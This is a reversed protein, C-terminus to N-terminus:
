LIPAWEFIIKAGCKPCGHDHSRGKYGCSCEIYFEYRIIKDARKKIAREQDCIDRSRRPTVRGFGALSDAVFNIQAERRKPFKKEKLVGLMLEAWPIFERDYPKAGDQLANVVDAPSQARSLQPWLRDWVQDFIMRYNEARGSIESPRVRAPHGRGPKELMTDLPFKPKKIAKDRKRMQAPLRAM